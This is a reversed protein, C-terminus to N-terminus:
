EPRGGCEHGNSQPQVQDLAVLVRMRMRWQGVLMPVRMVRMVLMGMIKGPVLTFRMVVKMFMLRQGVTMGMVRIDMVPVPVAVSGHVAM